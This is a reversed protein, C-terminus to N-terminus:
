VVGWFCLVRCVHRSGCGEVVGEGVEDVAGPVVRRAGVNPVGVGDGRLVEGGVAGGVVTEGVPVVAVAGGPVGEGGGVEDVFECVSVGLVQRLVGVEAM